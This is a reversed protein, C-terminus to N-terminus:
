STPYFKLKKKLPPKWWICLQHSEKREDSQEGMKSCNGSLRFHCWELLKREDAWCREIPNYKSHYPPYYILRIKVGIEQSLEVM